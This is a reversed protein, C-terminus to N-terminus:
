SNPILSAYATDAYPGQGYGYADFAARPTADAVLHRFTIELSPRGGALSFEVGSILGVLDQGQDPKTHDPVGTMELFTGYCAYRDTDAETETWRPMLTTPFTSAFEAPDVQDLLYRISDATWPRVNAFDDRTYFAAIQATRTGDAPFDNTVTAIEVRNELGSPIRWTGGDGFEEWPVGNVNTVQVIDPAQIKNQTYNLSPRELLSAPIELLTHAHKFALDFVWPQTTRPLRTAPDIYPALIALAGDYGGGLGAPVPMAASIAQALVASVLDRFPRGPPTVIVGTGLGIPPIPWAPFVTGFLDPNADFWDELLDFELGTDLLGTYRARALDITYDVAACSLTVGTKLPRPKAKADTLRGYFAFVVPGASHLKVEIAVPIDPTIWSLDTFDPVNFAFTASMPSPQVPWLQGSPMDWGFRLGSIPALDDAAHPDGTHTVTWSEQTDAPDGLQILVSYYPDAM